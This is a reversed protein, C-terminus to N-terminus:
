VLDCRSLDELTERRRILRASGERVLVVAPRFIGNYNSALPLCYAGCGAVAIIDGGSLPPLNIDRILIDGSECFKGSITVKRDEKALARNAVIAEHRAGYLAQRINDGMGGDVSVYCRIDPIDKIAGVRYLAVGAQAVIARGPEVILRPLSLKLKHCQNKIKDTHLRLPM